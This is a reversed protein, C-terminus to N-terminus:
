QVWRLFKKGNMIVIGKYDAGVKMGSLNYMQYDSSNSIQHISEVGDAGDGFGFSKAESESLTLYARNAGITPEKDETVIYFMVGDTLNQLVYTGAKAKEAAYKGTLLGYTADGDAPKKTGYGLARTGTYGGEKYIIVPTNAPIDDSLEDLVLTTGNVSSCTYAKVGEPIDVAFPAVYTGYGAAASINLDPVQAAETIAINKHTSSTYFGNDTGSGLTAKAITNFFSWIGENTFSPTISVPLANSLDSTVRMQNNDGGYVKGVCIYQSTGNIDTQSLTFCNIYGEVNVPTFIFAQAYNPNATALYKVRYYGTNKYSTGYEYTAAYEKWAFATGDDVLRFTYRKDEAPANIVLNRIAAQLNDYATKYQEQTAETGDLLSVAEARANNYATALPAPYQFADDGINATLQPNADVFSQLQTKYYTATTNILSLGGIACLCDNCSGGSCTIRISLYVKDTAGLDETIGFDVTGSRLAKKTSSCQFNKTALVTTDNSTDVHYITATLTPQSDNNFWCYYWSFTYRQGNGTPMSNLTGTTFQFERTTNFRIYLVRSTYSSGNYSCSGGNDMYRSGGGATIGWSPNNTGSWGFNTPESGSGTAGNGDWGTLYNTQAGATLTGLTIILALTVRRIKLVNMVTFNLPLINQIILM